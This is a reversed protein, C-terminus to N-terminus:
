GTAAGGLGGLVRSGLARGRPPAGALGDAATTRRLVAEPDLEDADVDPGGGIFTWSEEEGEDYDDGAGSAADRQTANKGTKAKIM